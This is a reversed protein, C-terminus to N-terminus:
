RGPILKMERAYQLMERLAVNYKRPDGSRRAIQRVDRVELALAKRLKGSAVMSRIEERYVQYERISEPGKWFASGHTKTRLHDFYDMEIAPAIADDLWGDMERIQSRSFIHHRETVRAKKQLKDFSGGRYTSEGCDNHVLIFTSSIAYNNHTLVEYNYVSASVNVTEVVGAITSSAGEVTAVVDSSRLEAAKTWGQREVYFPHEPTARIREGGIQLVVLEDAVHSFTEGVDALEAIGEEENWAWVRDGTEITEIPRLGDETLVLTGAVFSNNITCRVPKNSRPEPQRSASRHREFGRASPATSTGPTRLEPIPARPSPDLISGGRRADSAVGAVDDGASAVRGAMRGNRLSKLAKWGRVVGAGAVPVTIGVAAAAKDFSSMPHGTIPDVGSRIAEADVVSGLIPVLGVGVSAVARGVGIALQLNEEEEESLLDRLPRGDATPVTVSMEGRPDRRNIPDNGAFAYLNSSDAYGFPDPTLFSATSPDYWRARAYVFGSAPERFPLAHFDSHIRSLSEESAALYLDPLEYVVIQGTGDGLANFDGLVGLGFRRIFPEGDGTHARGLQIMWEPAPELPRDGWGSFRLTDSLAVEVADAGAILADWQSGAIEWVITSAGALVPASGELTRLVVGSAVASVRGAGEATVADVAESLHVRIEYDSATKRLVVRDVHAGHVFRPADGWSDAYVIRELIEGTNGDLVSTINGTGAHDVVPLASSAAQFWVSLALIAVLRKMNFSSSRIM